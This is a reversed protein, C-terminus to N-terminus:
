GRMVQLTLVPAKMLRPDPIWSLVRTALNSDLWNVLTICRFYPVAVYFAVNM